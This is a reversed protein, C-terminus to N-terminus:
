YAELNSWIKGYFNQFFFLGKYLNTPSAKRVTQKCPRYVVSSFPTSRVNYDLICQLGLVCAHAAKASRVRGCYGRKPLRVRSPTYVNARFLGSTVVSSLSRLLLNFILLNLLICLQQMLLGQLCSRLLAYLCRSFFFLALMFCDGNYVSRADRDAAWRCASAAPNQHGGASYHRGLRRASDDEKAREM